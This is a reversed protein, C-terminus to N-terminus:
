FRAAVEAVREAGRAVVIYQVLTLILFVVAGVVYDGRVVFAGFAHIVRGADAQLLILRVSSVNLSLRYLTSVVVLMSLTSLELANRAYAASLLLAVSLALNCTILVDLLQTPLPLIMMAVSAVIFAAVIAASGQGPSGALRFLRSRHRVDPTDSMDRILGL